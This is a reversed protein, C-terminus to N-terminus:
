RKTVPKAKRVAAKTVASTGKARKAAAGQRSGSVGIDSAARGAPVNEPSGFIESYAIPDYFKLMEKAFESRDVGLEMAFRAYLDTPVRAYGGEIQSLFTYYELGLRDALARQTLGKDTRLQKIYSGGLRKMRKAHSTTAGRQAYTM